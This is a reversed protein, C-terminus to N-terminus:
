VRTLLYEGYKQLLDLILVEHERQDPGKETSLRAAVMEIVSSKGSGWKGELGIARGGDNAKITNVIATAVRAHSGGEFEDSSVPLDDVFSLEDSPSTAIHDSNM